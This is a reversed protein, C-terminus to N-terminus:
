GSSIDDMGAWDPQGMLVQRGKGLRAWIHRFKVVGVWLVAFVIM